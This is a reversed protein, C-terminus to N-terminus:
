IIIFIVLLVVEAVGFSTGILGVVETIDNTSVHALRLHVQEFFGVHLRRFDENVSTSVRRAFDLDYVFRLTSKVNAVISNLAKLQGQALWARGALVLHKSETAEPISEPHQAELMM